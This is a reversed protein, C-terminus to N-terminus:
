GVDQRFYFVLASIFLLILHTGVVIFIEKPRQDVTIHIIAMEVGNPLGVAM